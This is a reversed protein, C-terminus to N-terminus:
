IMMLTFTYNFFSSQRKCAWLMNRMAMFVRCLRDRTPHGMQLKRYIGRTSTHGGFSMVLVLGMVNQSIRMWGEVCLACWYETCLSGFGGFKMSWDEYWGENDRDRSTMVSLTLSLGNKKASTTALAWRSTSKVSKKPEPTPSKSSGSTSSNENWNICSWFNTQEM